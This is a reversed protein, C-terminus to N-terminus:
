CVCCTLPYSLLYSVIALTHSFLTHSFLIHSFLNDSFLTDSFLTGSFLTLPHSLYLLLIALQTLKRPSALHIVQPQLIFPRPNLFYLPTALNDYSIQKGIAEHRIVGNLYGFFNMENLDEYAVCYM